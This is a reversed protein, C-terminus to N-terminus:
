AIELVYFIYVGEEFLAIRINTKGARDGSWDFAYGEREPTLCQRIKGSPKSLSAEL